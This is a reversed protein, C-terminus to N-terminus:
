LSRDPTRPLSPDPSQARTRVTTASQKRRRPSSDCAEPPTFEDRLLDMLLGDHWHGDAGREYQRMIGVPQFGVKAYAAIARTNAVPVDPEQVHRLPLTRRAPRDSLIHQAVVRHACIAARGLRQPLCPPVRRPEVLLALERDVDHGAPCREVQVQDFRHGM